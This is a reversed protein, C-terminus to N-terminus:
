LNLTNNPQFLVSLSREQHICKIATAFLPAVSIVNIKSPVLKKQANKCLPITDTVILRDIKSNSIRKIAPPSLLPHTALVYVSKAGNSKKKLLLSAEKITGATDVIDDRIIAIKGKVKGILNLAKSKNADERKKNIIAISTGFEKALIDIRKVGGIDPSVIVVNKNKVEGPIIKKVYDAFVLDSILHDTPVDFFGQIAPSHLDMTLVRDAGASVILNAVLKTSIPVRPRDKREQRAYGFYPIVATVRRASARKVADLLLLLELLNDAPPQTSDIIFVDKGRVNELIQVRIEGDAFNKLILKTPEIGLHKSIAEGLRRNSRGIIIKINNM